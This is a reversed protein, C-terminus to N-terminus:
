FLEKKEIIGTVSWVSEFIGFYAFGSICIPKTWNRNLSWWCFEFIQLASRKKTHGVLERPRWFWDTLMVSKEQRSVHGIQPCQMSLCDRFWTESYWFQRSLYNGAPGTESSKRIAFPLRQLGSSGSKSPEHGSGWHVSDISRDIRKWKHQTLENCALGPFQKTKAQLLPAPTSSNNVSWTFLKRTICNALQGASKIQERGFEPHFCDSWESEVIRIRDIQSNEIKLKTGTAVIAQTM